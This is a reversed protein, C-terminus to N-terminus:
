AHAGGRLDDVWESADKIDAWAKAGKVFLQQLGTEEVKPKYERLDILQYDKLEGTKLNEKAKVHVIARHFVLNDKQKEIQEPKAEVCIRSKSNRLQLHVNTNETGGWETIKGVFYREVDIWHIAEQIQFESTSTITIPQFGRHPSRVAYSLSPERRAREQWRVVVEARKRDLQNLNAQQALREADAVLSLLLGSPVIVRLAYSGEVVKVQIENLISKSESGLVFDQVDRNFEIFKSFSLGESPSISKGAITGTLAFEVSAQDSM